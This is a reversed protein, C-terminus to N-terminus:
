QAHVAAPGYRREFEGFRLGLQNEDAGAIQGFGLRRYFIKANENRPDVGLWVGQLGEGILFGVATAIMKKGWGQKQHTELINIHMHAPSFVINADPATHMNRLLEAYQIDGSKVAHERPYKDALPPWWHEAAYREYARTDTSGVVYGVIEKSTEDELVFAWTTPLKLYPVAYVLGPLEVFDHLAESSTGANATLLCIRSVSQEDDPTAKRIKLFM